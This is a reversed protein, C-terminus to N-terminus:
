ICKKIKVEWCNSIKSIIKVLYGKSCDWDKIYFVGTSFLINKIYTDRDHKAYFNVREAPKTSLRCVICNSNTAPQGKINQYTLAYGANQLRQLTTRFMFIGCLGAYDNYSVEGTKHLEDEIAIRM